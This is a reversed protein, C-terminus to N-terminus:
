DLRETLSKLVRSYFKAAHARPFSIEEVLYGPLMDILQSDRREDLQPKYMFEAEDTNEDSNENAIALKFHLTGNRGTQICDYVDEPGDRKIGTVVLGTLDSYLNEKMKATQTAQLQAQVQAQDIGRGGMASPKMASGPVRASAAQAQATATATAEAARAANLKTTLSKIETKAESLTTTVETIQAQLKDVKAESAEFQQQSKQGEKALQRQAALESKLSKILDNSAQTKEEGQKKLRDFNKEAEVVAVNRMERYRLELAEYKKTLEGLHRRTSPDSEILSSSASRKSASLPIHYSNLRQASPPASFRSFTPLDEVQDQEEAADIDMGGDLQTEPIESPADLPQQGAKDAAAKRGRKAAAPEANKQVSDPVVADKKPRGRGGKTKAPEDSHPPTALVDDADDDGEDEVAKKAKRGRKAKAPPNTAKEALAQREAEEELAAAAKTGVRRTKTKPEPKTVKNAPARGRGKKAAPM